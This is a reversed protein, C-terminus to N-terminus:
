SKGAITQGRLAAKRAQALENPVSRSDFDQDLELAVEETLRLKSLSEELMVGVNDSRSATMVMQYIEEIRVPMSLLSAELTTRRSDMRSQRALAEVFDAEARRLQQSEDNSVEQNMRARVERLKSQISVSLQKREKQGAQLSADSLCMRLYDLTADDLREVEALSLSASRDHGLRYLSKVREQMPAYNQLHASGGHAEIENLMRTRQDARADARARADVAARFSPLGPIVALAVAELAAMGMLSLVFADGGWPISMALAAALGVQLAILHRPHRLYAQWYSGPKSM